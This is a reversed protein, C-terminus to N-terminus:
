GRDVPDIEGGDGGASEPVTFYFTAGKGLTAEAWISGHHRAIARQATALGMGIGEFESETHLRHFIGFLKEAYRMDFGVGNDRVFYIPAGDRVISGVEISSPETHRTFKWANEILNSMVLQLLQLDGAVTMGDTVDVAVASRPASTRCRELAQKALATLDVREVVMERRTLRSLTLLGDILGGMKNTAAIIRGLHDKVEEPIAGGFDELIITSYGIMSRLPARLDHSVSYSFSRLEENVLQLERVSRQLERNLREIEDRERREATVDRFTAVAGTIAGDPGVIPRGNVRVFVGEPRSQNRIFFEVGNSHLGRLARVLTYESQPVPTVGDPLFVGYGRTWTSADSYRIPVGVIAQAAPNVYSLRGDAAAVVVGDGMAEAITRFLLDQDAAANERRKDIGVM